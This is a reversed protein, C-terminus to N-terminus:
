KIPAFLISSNQGGYGFSNSLALKIDLQEKKPGVLINTDLGEDPNDLNINPHIWGTEIAKITAIAEVAGSAGQLHGIMSKSSNIRLQPNQGFHDMLTQYERQDGKQTSSAFANIYNVDEKAVGAQDLAKKICLNMGTGSIPLSFDDDPHPDTIHYADSTFSGGLFEAYIKAGRRKAHELEELLLVGAGEGIVFGDRDIDWPRSAKEPDSNRRSLSRCATFGGLAIQVVAADSGGCLMMDTEGRTILGAASLICFNSTACAASLAYNPGMWGLEMALIAPGMNSIGIPLSFPKIKKISERMTEITEQFLHFGGLSSGIIIGRKKKDYDGDVEDTIGGDALAKKAATLLYLTYKDAKKALKPSVWGDLSFSKIEGAIKTPFQSCDFNEIESIGSVGDLLNNYFVDPEHGLPTVLGLGTVVVRPRSAHQVTVAMTKGVRKIHRQRASTSSAMKAQFHQLGNNCPLFLSSIPGPLSYYEKLFSCSHM